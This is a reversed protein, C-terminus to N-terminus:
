PLPLLAETILIRSTDLRAIERQGISLNVTGVPFASFGLQTSTVDFIGDFSMAIETLKNAIVDRGQFLDTNNLAVLAAELAAAGAYGTTIDVSVFLEIWIEIETPRSFGVPHFTGNSDTATGSELGYALIGAPKTDFILQAIADDTLAPPTGDFVVVEIAKGPLGSADPFNSTNEFVTCQLVDPDILVDARIADLTASGTVRLQEERRTRLQTDTDIENGVVADLPNTASNWGVVPTSIVTITGSNAIVAGAFEAEFEVAQVGGISTFDVVPTWRNDPDGVVNAFHTGATLVVAADVDVDLVVTSKTAGERVTGTLASLKELLFGEAADPNFGNYAVQAVEWVERLQAAFIGNMQGLPEDPATNLTADIEAKQQTSLEDLIEEITKIQLGTADVFPM